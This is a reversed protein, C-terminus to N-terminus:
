EQPTTLFSFIGETIVEMFYWSIANLYRQELTFDKASNLYEEYSSYIDVTWYIPDLIDWFEDAKEIDEVTIKAYTKGNEFSNM